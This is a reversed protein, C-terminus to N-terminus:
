RFVTGYNVLRYGQKGVMGVLGPDLLLERERESYATIRTLAALEADIVAPHVM